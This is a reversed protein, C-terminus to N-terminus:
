EDGSVIGKINAFGKYRDLIAQASAELKKSAEVDKQFQATDAAAISAPDVLAGEWYDPRVWREEAPIASNLQVVVPRVPEAPADPDVDTRAGDLIKLPELQRIVGARYAIHETLPNPQSGDLNRLYLFKLQGLKSLHAVENMHEIQNGQLFLQQLNDLGAAFQLSRITNGTLRLKELKKLCSLGIPDTIQRNGSLDLETLNPCLKGILVCADNDLGKGALPLVTIADLEREKGERKLSDPTIEFAPM